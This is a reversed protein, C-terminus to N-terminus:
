RLHDNSQQNPTTLWFEPQDFIRSDLVDPNALDFILRADMATKELGEKVNSEQYFLQDFSGDKLSLMLGQYLRDHLRQNERNVFFYLPAKYRLLLRPEVMLQEDNLQHLEGWAETIGRPYYDYREAKLMDVLNQYDLTEIVKLGNSKLIDVDPWGVGQAATLQKLNDLTRIGSFKQKDAKRIIFVRHGLLGKLLPFYIPRLSEERQKSTMTWLLNIRQNKELMLVARKQPINQQLPTIAYDGFENQTKSLILELLKYFYTNQQETIDQQKPFIITDITTTLADKPFSPAEDAILSVPFTFCLLITSFFNRVSTKLRVWM